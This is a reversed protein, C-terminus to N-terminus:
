IVIIAIRTFNFYLIIVAYNYEFKDHKEELPELIELITEFTQDVIKSFGAESSVISSAFMV